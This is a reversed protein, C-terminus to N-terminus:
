SCSSCISHFATFYRIRLHQPFNRECSKVGQLYLLIISEYSERYPPIIITFLVLLYTSHVQQIMNIGAMRCLIWTLPIVISQFHYKFTLNILYVNKFIYILSTDCRPWQIFVWEYIDVLLHHMKLSWLMQNNITSYKYLKTILAWWNKIFIHYKNLMPSNDISDVVLFGHTDIEWQGSETFSTSVLYCWTLPLL